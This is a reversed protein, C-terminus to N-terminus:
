SNKTVRYMVYGGTKSVVEFPLEIFGQWTGKGTWGNLARKDNRVSIYAVGNDTLKAQIDTVVGRREAEDPIVNLVFNCTITDFRGVPMEPRHYPDFGEAQNYGMARLFEVDDGRGCGYDLIRGTLLHQGQLHRMPTSLAARPIATLHGNHSLPTNM